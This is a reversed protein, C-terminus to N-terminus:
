LFNWCFVKEGFLVRSIFNVFLLLNDLFVMLWFLGFCFNRWRNIFVMWFLEINLFGGVVFIRVKFLWLLYVLENLLIYDLLLDIIEELM